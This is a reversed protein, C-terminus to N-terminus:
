EEGEQRARYFQYAPGSAVDDLTISLQDSEMFVTHVVRWDILNTSAQISYNHGAEASLKFGFVGDDVVPRLLRFGLSPRQVILRAEVSMTVGVANSVTVAFDGANESSVNTLILSANTAGAINFGNTSWYSFDFGSWRWQYGLPEQGTASVTFIVNSGEVAVQSEPSATISPFGAVNTQTYKLTVFDARTNNSYTTLAVYVNGMSDVATPFPKDGYFQRDLNYPAAWLQSGNTDYKVTVNAFQNQNDFGTGGAQGSVYAHGHGDLLINADVYADSALNYFAVWLQRGDPDYKLTAV